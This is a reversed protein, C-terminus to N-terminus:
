SRRRVHRAGITTFFPATVSVQHLFLHTLVHDGGSIDINLTTTAFTKQVTQHASVWNAASTREVDFADWYKGGSVAHPGLSLVATTTDKVITQQASSLSSSFGVALDITYDAAAPLDVQFTRPVSADYNVGALRRDLASSDDAATIGATTWGFTVGNRTTPYSDGLVYTEDTGDTVFGSTGRFNFGKDWSM